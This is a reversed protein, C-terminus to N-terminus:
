QKVERSKLINAISPHAVVVQGSKLQARIARIKDSQPAKKVDETLTIPEEVTKQKFFSALAQAIKPDIHESM